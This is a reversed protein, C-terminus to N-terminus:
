IRLIRLVYSIYKVSSHRCLLLVDSHLLWLTVSMMQLHQQLAFAVVGFIVGAVADLM